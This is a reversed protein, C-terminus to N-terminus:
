IFYLCIIKLLIQKNLILQKRKVCIVKENIKSALHSYGRAYLSQYVCRGPEMNFFSKEKEEAETINQIQELTMNTTNRYEAVTKNIYKSNYHVKGHVIASSGTSNISVKSPPFLDSSGPNTGVQWESVVLILLIRLVSNSTVYRFVLVIYLHRTISKQSVLVFTKFYM